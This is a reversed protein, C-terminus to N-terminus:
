IIIKEGDWTPTSSFIDFRASFFIDKEYGLYKLNKGNRSHLFLTILEKYSKGGEYIAVAAQVLDDGKWNSYNKLLLFAIRGATYFDELSFNNRTGACVLYVDNKIENIRRAISLSNVLAGIFVRNEPSLKNLVRTGNTTKFLIIRDKVIEAKYELPSNSLHYAKVPMGNKEGCLLFRSNIHTRYFKEMDSSNKYPRIEKAGNELATIITTSARLTDIVVVSCSHVPVIKTEDPTLTIHIEPV